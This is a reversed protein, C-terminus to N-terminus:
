TRLEQRTLGCHGTPGPESIYSDQGEFMAEDWEWLMCDSGECRIVGTASLNASMIPCIKKKAQEETINM